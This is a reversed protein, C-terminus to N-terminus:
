ETEAPTLPPVSALIDIVYVLTDDGAIGFERNGDAGFGLAPPVIALVQSGVTQGLLADGFGKQYNSTPMRVLTDRQWTSDFTRGTAWVVGRYEVTVTAGPTVEVGDGRKLVTASYTTPPTKPPITIQPEGTAGVHVEPLSDMVAQEEGVARDAAVSVVDVIVVVSDSAEIGYQESGTGGFTEEPPLVAAIRSGANSCLIVDELGAVLSRGDLVAQAPPTRYGVADILDGTSADFAAYAFTVLSGPEALRGEGPDVVTRQTRAPTLAETFRVSPITEPGGLVVIAESATGTATPQCSLDGTLESPPSQCAALLLVAGAFAVFAIPKQV